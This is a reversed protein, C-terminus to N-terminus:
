RPPPPLFNVLFEQFKPFTDAKGQSPDRLQPFALYIHHLAVLNLTLLSKVESLNATTVTLGKGLDDLRAFVPSLDVGVPAAQQPPPAAQPAPPPQWTPAQPGPPPQWQPAAQVTATPQGYGPPPAMQPQAYGPPVMPAGMPPLAAATPPPPAPPPPAVAAGAAGRRKRGPTPAAAAVEAPAAPPPAGPTPMAQLPPGGPYGPAQPQFGPPAMPPPAYQQMPVAAAGAPGVPAQPAQAYQPPPQMQTTGNQVGNPPPQAAPQAVPPADLNTGDNVVLPGTHGKLTCSMEHILVTKRVLDRNDLTENYQMLPVLQGNPGAKKYTHNVLNRIDIFRSTELQQKRVGLPTGMMPALPYELSELEM